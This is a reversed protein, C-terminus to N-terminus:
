QGRVYTSSVTLGAAPSDSAGYMIITYGRDPTVDTVVFTRFYNNKSADVMEIGGINGVSTPPTLPYYSGKAAFVISQKDEIDKRLIESEAYYVVRLQQRRNMSWMSVTVMLIIIVILIEMMSAGLNRKM